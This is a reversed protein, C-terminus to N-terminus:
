TGGRLCIEIDEGGGNKPLAEDFRCWPAHVRHPQAPPSESNSALLPVADGIGEGHDHGALARDGHAPNDTPTTTTRRLMLNATPSWPPHRVRTSLTFNDIMGVTKAGVAWMSAEETVFVTSGAFGFVALSNDGGGTGAGDGHLAIQAARAYAHLLDPRPKTDDDMFLVWDADSNDIGM